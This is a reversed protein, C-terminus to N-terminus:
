TRKSSMLETRDVFHSEPTSDGFDYANYHCTSINNSLQLDDEWYSRKTDPIYRWLEDGSYIEHFHKKNRRCIGYLLDCFFSPRTYKWHFREKERKRKEAVGIDTVIGIKNVEDHKLLFMRCEYCMDYREAGSLSAVVYGLPSYIKKITSSPIGLVGINDGRRLCNACKNAVNLDNNNEQSQVEDQSGQVDVSQQDTGDDGHADTDERM